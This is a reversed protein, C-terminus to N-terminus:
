TLPHPKLTLDDKITGYHVSYLVKAREDLYLPHLEPIIVKKTEFGERKIEPLTIDAVFVNFNKRKLRELIKEPNQSESKLSSYPIVNKKELWFSLDNIRELSHWYVFRHDLSFIEDEKPPRNQFKKDNFLRFYRRCQISELLSKYIADEYNFVSASGVDVAPGIGTRDVVISIATPVKLDSTANFVFAELNYRRLYDELKKIGGDFGIIRPINRKTLYSYICADREIVELLGSNFARDTGIEGLAAGTSIEEKKLQFENNFPGSLFVCQAPIKRIKSNILDIVEIWLYENFRAAELDQEKSQYFMRPDIFANDKRFQHSTLNSNIPNDLCLRELCEAISKIRALTQTSHYGQGHNGECSYKDQAVKNPLTIFNPIKPEDTIYPIENELNSLGVKRLNILTKELPM